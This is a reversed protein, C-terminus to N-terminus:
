LTLVVGLRVMFRVDYWRRDNESHNLTYANKPVQDYEPIFLNNRQMELSQSSFLSEFISFRAYVGFNSFVYQRLETSLHVGGVENKIRATQENFDQRDSIEFFSFGASILGMFGPNSEWNANFAYGVGLSLNSANAGISFDAEYIWNSNYRLAFGLNLAYQSGSFGSTTDNIPLYARGNAVVSGDYVVYSPDMRYNIATVGVTLDAKAKSKSNEKDESKHNNSARLSWVCGLFVVAVALLKLRIM